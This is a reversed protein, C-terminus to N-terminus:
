MPLNVPAVGKTSDIRPLTPTGAVAGPLHWLTALEELNLTFADDAHPHDFPHFIAEYLMRFIKRQKMSSAWFVVDEWSDLSKRKTVHPYFGEREVYEEFMEESRWAVRKGGVNQWPYDYPETTTFAFSNIGNFPKPFSLVNQIQAPKFNEKKSVYLLRLVCLALPKSFKKNVAELEEKEEFTLEIEKKGVAKAIDKDKLNYTLLVDKTKPKGNEDVGDQVKRTQEYGYDTLAVDGHKIYHSTRKQKKFKDAMDRLSVHEHAVENVYFKPMKKGNYVGEDQVLIQYWFYEGKGIGGMVELLTTIPDTKYEEKPDKDLGYDVYTKIPLFDAKMEYPKGDKEYEKGTKLDVPKWKKSTYFTAGWLSVSKALHHYRISQTYDDAEVIEIGPYQAYFNAEVLPRFREQIRIYFHIVGELSAIELSSYVPLNGRFIRSYSNAVGGGQLLSALAVETALPSKTIERPLKIELMLWKIKAMAKQQVYMMWFRWSWACLLLFSALYILSLGIDILFQMLFTYWPISYLHYLISCLFLM